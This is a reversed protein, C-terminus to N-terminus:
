DNKERVIEYNDTHLVIYQRGKVFFGYNEVATVRYVKNDIRVFDGGKVEQM